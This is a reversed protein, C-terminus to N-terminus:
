PLDCGDFGCTSSEDTDCFLWISSGSGAKLSSRIAVGAAMELDGESLEARGTPSLAQALAEEWGTILPQVSM